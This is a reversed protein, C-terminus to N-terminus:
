TLILRGLRRAKDVAAGRDEVDLKRLLHAVHTKVTEKSVFLQTAVQANTLGGALCALVERERVSLPNVPLDGWAAALLALAERDIVCGGRAVVRMTDVLGAAATNSRVIGAVGSKIAAVAIHLDDSEFLMVIRVNADIEKLANVFEAVSGDQLRQDSLVISGPHRSLAAVAEDNSGVFAVVEVDHESLLRLRLADRVVEHRHVLLISLISPATMPGFRGPIGGDRESTLHAFGRADGSRSRVIVRRLKAVSVRRRSSNSSSAIWSM